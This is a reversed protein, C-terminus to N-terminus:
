NRVFAGSVKGIQPVQPNLCIHILAFRFMLVVYWHIHVHHHDDTLDARTDLCKSRKFACLRAWRRRQYIPNMLVWKGKDPGSRGM